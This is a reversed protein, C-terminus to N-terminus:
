RRRQIREGLRVVGVLLLCATIFGILAIFLWFMPRAFAYALVLLAILGGV